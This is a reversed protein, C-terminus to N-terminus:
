GERLGLLNSISVSPNTNDSVGWLPFGPLGAARYAAKLATAAVESAHSSGADEGTWPALQEM